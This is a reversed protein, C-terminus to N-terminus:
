KENAIDEVTAYPHSYRGNKETKFSKIQIAKNPCFNICASCLFCEIDKQWIPKGNEMKIKKSLCVKECTGCGGCKSDAFMKYDMGMKNTLAIIHPVVKLLFTPIKDQAETDKEKANERKIIAEAIAPLKEQLTKELEAIYKDIPVNYNFKPDNSPMTITFQLNLIKGKKKLIKETEFFAGHSTGLRNAIAFIYQTKDLDLKQIFRKVPNPITTMYIPFVFGVTQAETKISDRGLMKVIPILESDPIQKQLERAIHLSNGTGSFYYIEIKM